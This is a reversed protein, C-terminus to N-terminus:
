CCVPAPFPQEVSTAARYGLIEPGLGCEGVSFENGYGDPVSEVSTARSPWCWRPDSQREQQNPNLSLQKARYAIGMGCEGLVKLLEYDGFYRVRTRPELGDVTSSDAAGTQVSDSVAPSTRLTAHDLTPDDKM